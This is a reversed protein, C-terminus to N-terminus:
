IYVRRVRSGIGCLVEYAITGTKEAIDMASILEKGDRGILTVRDGEKVGDIDTVDVMTMDMCVRGAVPARQGRVLVEGVNSLARSYGDAYGIPITAILSERKTIYTRGYSVTAGSPVRKLYAISSILAMVPKLSAGTPLGSIWQAPPYGYLMLGPRVMNFRNDMGALVAASNAIHRLPPHIGDSALREITEAFLRAQDLASSPDALDADAFHTLLGELWIGPLAAIERALRVADDPRVGIRNMGTDIKLHVPMSVGRARAVEAIRRVTAGDYIVPTLCFDALAETEDEFIGALILIPTKIGGERLRVGEEVHAVGLMDVGLAELRSAVPLDGHGYANAKVVALVKIGPAGTAARRVTELNDALASLDIEAVTPRM